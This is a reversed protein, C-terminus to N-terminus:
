QCLTIINRAVDVWAVLNAVVLAAAVVHDPTM